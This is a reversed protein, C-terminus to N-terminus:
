RDNRAQGAIGINKLPDRTLRPIVNLYAAILGKNAYELEENFSSLIYQISVRNKTEKL